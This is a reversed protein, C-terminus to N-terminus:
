LREKIREGLRVLMTPSKCAKVHCTLSVVTRKGPVMYALYIFENWHALFTKNTIATSEQVNPYSRVMDNYQRQAEIPSHPRWVQIGAIYNSGKKNGWYLGDYESSGKIGSLPYVDLGKKVGLIEDIDSPLLLLEANIRAAAVPGSARTVPAPARKRTARKRNAPGPRVKGRKRKNIKPSVPESPGGVQFKSEPQEHASTDQRDVTVTQLRRDRISSDDKKDAAIRSHKTAKSIKIPTPKLVNHGTTSTNHVGIKPTKESQCGTGIIAGALLSAMIIRNLM